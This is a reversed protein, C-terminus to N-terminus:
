LAGIIPLGFPWLLLSPFTTRNAVEVDTVNGEDETDKGGLFGKMWLVVLILGLSVLSAFIIGAIALSSLGRTGFGNVSVDQELTFGKGIGGAEEAVNFDKRVVNGQISVDFIRRGIGQSTADDSFLIKAFHLRVKYSGKQLCIDYYKLSSPSLRSTQYYEERTVNSKTAVFNSRDDYEM